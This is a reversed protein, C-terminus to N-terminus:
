RMSYLCGCYNQRYLGFERALAVSEQFGGKKKFDTPLYTVGHRRGCEEGCADILAPRKHPSVSLTSAFADFGGQAAERATRDLRFAFCVRCRRGGEPEGELGRIAENWGEPDPDHVLLSLGTESAYRVTEDRRLDHEEVPHINPNYFFLTV